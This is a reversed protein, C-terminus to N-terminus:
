GRGAPTVPALRSIVGRVYAESGCRPDALKMRCELSISYIAGFRTFDADLGVDTGEIVIGDAPIRAALGGKLGRATAPPLPYAKSHGTMVFSLGNPTSSSITYFDGHPFIRMNALLDPDGPLLVPVSLSDIAQRNRAIFPAARGGKSTQAYRGAATWNVPLAQPTNPDGAPQPTATPPKNLMGALKDFLSPQAAVRGPQRAGATTAPKQQPQAQAAAFRSRQPQQQQQQAAAGVAAGVIAMSLAISLGLRPRM